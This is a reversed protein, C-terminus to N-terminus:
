STVPVFKAREYLMFKMFAYEDDSYRPMYTREMLNFQTVDQRDDFSEVTVFQETSHGTQASFEAKIDEFGAQRTKLDPDDYQYGFKDTMDKAPAGSYIHNEEMDKVAIGGTMLMSKKRAHIPGTICHGVLWVDDDIILSGSSKFRCGALTDGFKMHSWLQSHAGAGVGNGIRTDGGLSDIITYHGFWCNHGIQTKIGHVISGHHISTYDGIVLEEVDIYTDRGIYCGFGIEVSKCNPGFVVNDGFVSKDGITFNTEPNKRLFNHTM